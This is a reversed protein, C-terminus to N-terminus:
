SQGCFQIFKYQEIEIGNQVPLVVTLDRGQIIEIINGEDIIQIDAM